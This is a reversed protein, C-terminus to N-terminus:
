AALPPLACIPRACRTCGGWKLRLLYVHLFKFFLDRMQGAGDFVHRINDGTLFAREVRECAPNLHEHFAFGRACCFTATAYDGAVFSRGMISNRCATKIYAVVADWLIIRSTKPMEDFAMPAAYHWRCFAVTARSVAPCRRVKGVPARKQPRDFYQRQATKHLAM